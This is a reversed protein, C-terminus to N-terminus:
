GRRFGRIVWAIAYGFLLFVLSPILWYKLSTLYHNFKEQPLKELQAKYKTELVFIAHKYHVEKEDGPIKIHAGSIAGDALERALSEISRDGQARIIDDASIDRNYDKSIRRSQCEIVAYAWENTIEDRPPADSYAFIGVAIGYLVTLLIWIRHWVNLRRKAM